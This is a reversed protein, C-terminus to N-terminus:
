FTPRAKILEVSASDPWVPLPRAVYGAHALRSQFLATESAWFVLRIWLRAIVYAQNVVLLAAITWGVPRTPGFRLYWGPELWVYWAVVAGLMAYDLAFLALANVWNRRIFALSARVAGVMSRRDEVVARVQAYDLVLHCAALLAAYAFPWARLYRFALAYVVAMLLALRLFRFFFTGSVASVGHAGTPRDRAYRDIIGGSLLMSLVFFPYSGTLSVMWRGEYDILAVPERAVHALGNGLEESRAITQERVQRVWRDGFSPATTINLETPGAVRSSMAIPWAFIAALLWLAGLIAPARNVRRVGDRWATLVTMQLRHM